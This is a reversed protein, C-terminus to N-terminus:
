APTTWQDYTMNWVTWGNGPELKRDTGLYRVVDGIRSHDFMWRADAESLGTCGHSVNLRGFTSLPTGSRQHLYEGSYTIQLTWFEPENYFDDDNKDKVGITRSDMQVKQRKYMIVKIGGRTSWKPGPKGATIKLKKVVTGNKTMTLTHHAVDVTNIVSDGITFHASFTRKGWVGPSLEVSDIKAKMAVKTGAPWYTKPRFWVETNRGIWYAPDMWRWAGEVRPTTTVTLAKLVADTNRVPRDFKVIIPTGVGVVQGDDVNLQVSSTAAPTLTRFTSTRTVPAAGDVAASATVTYSTRSAMPQTSHWATREADFAGALLKGGASKVRVDSLAGRDVSVRVQADMRVKAAGAEPSISVVPGAPSSSTTETATGPVAAPTSPSGQRGGDNGSCGVAGLLLLVIGM